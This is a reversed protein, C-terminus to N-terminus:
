CTTAFYCLRYQGIAEFPVRYFGLPSPLLFNVSPVTLSTYFTRRHVNILLSGRLEFFTFRM